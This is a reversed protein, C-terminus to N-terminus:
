RSMSMEIEMKCGRAHSSDSDRTTSTYPGTALYSSIRYDQTKSFGFCTRADVHMDSVKLDPRTKSM